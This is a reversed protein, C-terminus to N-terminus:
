APGHLSSWLLLGSEVFLTSLTGATGLFRFLFNRDKVAMAWGHSIRAALLTAGLVAIILPSTASGGEILALLVLALPVYEAFNAHAQLNAAHSLAGVRRQIAQM